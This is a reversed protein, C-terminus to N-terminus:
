PQCTVESLQRLLVNCKEDGFQLEAPLDRNASDVFASGDADLLYTKRGVVLRGEAAPQGNKWKFTILRSVTFQDRLDLEYVGAEVVRVSFENNKVSVELPLDDLNFRILQPVDADVGSLVVDGAADTRGQPQGNLSIRLNPVGTHVVLINGANNLGASLQGAVLTLAGRVNLVAMGSTDALLYADVLSQSRYELQAGSFDTTLKVSTADNFAHTYSVSPRASAETRLTDNPGPTYTARIGFRSSEGTVSVFNQLALQQSVQWGASLAGSFQQSSNQYGFSSTVNVGSRNLSSTFSVQFAKLNDLPLSVVGGVGYDGLTYNIGANLAAQLKNQADLVASISANLSVPDFSASVGASLQAGVQDQWSAAGTMAWHPNIAWNLQTGVYAHQDLWGGEALLQPGTSVPASGLDYSIHAVERAGSVARVSIEGKQYHLPINQLNVRGPLADVSQILFGNDYIELTNRTPLLFTLSKLQPVQAPHYTLRLGSFGSAAGSVSSTVSRDEQYLVEADLARTLPYSARFGLQAATSQPQSSDYQGRLRLAATAKGLRVEPSIETQATALQLGIRGGVQYTLRLVPLRTSPSLSGTALDYDHQGLLLPAPTVVIQQNGPSFVVGVQPKLRVYSNGACLLTEAIYTAEEPLLGGESILIGAGSILATADGRNDDGVQLSILTEDVAPCTASQVPLEGQAQQTSTQQASAQGLTLGLLLSLCRWRSRKM